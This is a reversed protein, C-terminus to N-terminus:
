LAKPIAETVLQRSTEACISPGGDARTVVWNGRKAGLAFPEWKVSAPEIGHQRLADTIRREARSM